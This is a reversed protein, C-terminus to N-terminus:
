PHAGFARAWSTFSAIRWLADMRIASSDSLTFIDRLESGAFSILEKIPQRMPGSMWLKQPTAFGIKDRRLRIESPVVNKTADRLVKKTWGEDIFQKAKLAVSFEVIRHDLFPVRAEIGHAMSNRDEYRLLAPLTTRHFQDHMFGKLNSRLPLSPVYGGSFDPNLWNPRDVGRFDRIIRQAAAPLASIVSMGTLRSMSLGIPPRSISRALQCFLGQRILGANHAAISDLYGGFLEDAGQGDLMVKNGYQAASEFVAWQALISTSSIPGDLAYHIEDLRRALAEADPTMFVPNGCARDAAIAAYAREDLPSGPYTASITRLGTIEKGALCVITSSDLGGSLCSGIGVDSVLHEHVSQELLALLTQDANGQLQYENQIYWLEPRVSSPASDDLNITVCNGPMLQRVGKLLTEPRHESLGDCLFDIAAERHIHHSFGPVHRFQKLESAFCIGSDTQLYYLPKIGFRDRAAFFCRKEGDWIVFAFMGRFRELAAQGWKAYGNLVVETDSRGEFVVGEAMLQQRLGDHNYLEGNYVLWIDRGQLQMPQAGKESIDIIALRRAGLFIRRAQNGVQCWGAGDPGRHAIEDIASRTVNLGVSAWIGCM